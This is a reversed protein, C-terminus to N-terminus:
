AEVPTATGEVPVVRVILRAGKTNSSEVTHGIRVRRTDPSGAAGLSTNALTDVEFDGGGEGWVVTGAPAGANATPFEVIEGSTMVDVPEDAALMKRTLILVGVVGTQGGGKVVHGNVDLGVPWVKNLDATNTWDVALFARFGGVKPDYKDYRAV